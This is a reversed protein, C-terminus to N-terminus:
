QAGGEENSREPVPCAGDAFAALIQLVEGAERPVAIHRAGIGVLKSLGALACGMFPRWEETEAHEAADIAAQAVLLGDRVEVTVALADDFPRMAEDHEARTADPRARIDESVRIRAAAMDRDIQSGLRATDELAHRATETASVCGALSALACILAVVGLLGLGTRMARVGHRIMIMAPDPM